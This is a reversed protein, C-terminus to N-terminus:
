KNIKIVRGPNGIVTAGDPVDRIIVAGAGITAWKGISIEPLVCAGIGIQTGEGITVGGALSANPSIHAFDGVICDHEIVAGSNIICHEGIKTSANIVVKAMVVTGDGIASWSSISATKHILLGFKESLKERVEKRNKNNGISIVWNEKLGTEKLGSIESKFKQVPIHCIAEVKPNDDYIIPIKEGISEAIDIVSKCHGSAGFLIM